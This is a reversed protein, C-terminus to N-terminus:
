RGGLRWALIDVRGRLREYRSRGNAVDAAWANQRSTVIGLRAYRNCFEPLLQEELMQASHHSPPYPSTAAAHDAFTAGDNGFNVQLPSFLTLQNLAM